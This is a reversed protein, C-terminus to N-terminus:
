EPRHDSANRRMRDLLDDRDATDRRTNEEIEDARQELYETAKETNQKIRDREIATGDERGQREAKRVSRKHGVVLLLVGAVAAGVAALQAGIKSFLRGLWEHWMM